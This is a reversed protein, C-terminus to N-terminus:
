CKKLTINEYRTDLHEGNLFVREIIQSEDRLLNLKFIITMRVEEVKEM